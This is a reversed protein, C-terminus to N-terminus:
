GPMGLSKVVGTCCRIAKLPGLPIDSPMILLEYWIKNVCSLSDRDTPIRVLLQALTADLIALRCAAQCQLRTGGLGQGVAGRAGPCVRYCEGSKISRGRIVVLNDRGVRSDVMEHSSTSRSILSSEVHINDNIHSISKM